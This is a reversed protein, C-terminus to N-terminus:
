ARLGSSSGRPVVSGLISDATEGPVAAGSDVLKPGEADVCVDNQSGRGLALSLGTGFSSLIDWM